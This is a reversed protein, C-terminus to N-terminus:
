NFSFDFEKEHNENIERIFKGLEPMKCETALKCVKFYDFAQFANPYNEQLFSLMDTKNNKILYSIITIEYVTFLSNKSTVLNSNPFYPYSIKSNLDIEQLIPAKLFLKLLKVDGSLVALLIHDLSVIELIFPDYEKFYNEMDLKFQSISAPDSKNLDATVALKYSLSHELNQQKISEVIASPLEGMSLIKEVEKWRLFGVKFLNQCHQQIFHLMDIKKNELLLPINISDCKDLADGFGHALCVELLQIDGTNIIKELFYNKFKFPLGEQLVLKLIHLKKNDDYTFLYQNFFSDPDSEAYLLLQLDDLVAKTLERQQFIHQLLIGNSKRIPLGNWSTPIGHADVECNSLRAKAVAAFDSGPWTSQKFSQGLNFVLFYMSALKSSQQHEPMLEIKITKYIQDENLKLDTEEKLERLGAEEITEGPDIRGGPFSLRSELKNGDLRRGLIILNDNDHTKSIVILGVASKTTDQLRIPDIVLKNKLRDPLENLAELSCHHLKAGKDILWEAAHYNEFMIAYDLFNLNAFITNVDLKQMEFIYELLNTNDAFRLWNLLESDQHDLKINLSLLYDVVEDTNLEDFARHAAQTVYRTFNKAIVNPNLRPIILKLMALMIDTEYYRRDLISFILDPNASYKRENVNFFYAIGTEDIFHTNLIWNLFQILYASDSHTLKQTTFTYLNRPLYLKSPTRLQHVAGIVVSESAIHKILEKLKELRAHEPITKKQEETWPFSDSAQLLSNIFAADEELELCHYRALDKLIDYKKDKNDNEDVTMLSSFSTYSEDLKIEEPIKAELLMYGPMLGDMLKAILNIKEQQTLNESSLQANLQQHYTEDIYDLLELFRYAIGAIADNGGYFVFDTLTFKKVLSKNKRTFTYVIDQNPFFEIDVRTEGLLIPTAIAHEQFETLHPSIILNAFAKPNHQQLKNLDITFTPALELEPINSQRGIGTTGYIFHERGLQRATRSNQVEEGAIERKRISKLTDGIKLAAFSAHQVTLNETVIQFISADKKTIMLQKSYPNNKESKSSLREQSVTNKNASNYRARLNEQLTKLNHKSVEKPDFEQRDKVEHLTIIQKFNDLRFSSKKKAVNNLAEILQKTSENQKDIRHMNKKIGKM